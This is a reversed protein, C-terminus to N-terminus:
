SSFILSPSVDDLIRLYSGLGLNINCRWKQNKIFERIPGFHFLIGQKYVVLVVLFTILLYWPHHRFLHPIRPPVLSILTTHIPDFSHSEWPHYWIFSLIFFIMFPVLSYPFIMSPVLSILNDHINDFSHCYLSYWPYSWFIHSYWPHSWIYSIIM